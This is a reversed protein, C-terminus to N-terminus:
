VIVFAWLFSCCLHFLEDFEDDHFGFLVHLGFVVSESRQDALVVVEVFDGHDFDNAFQRSALQHFCLVEDESHSVVEAGEVLAVSLSACFDVVGDPLHFGVVEDAHEVEHVLDVFTMM